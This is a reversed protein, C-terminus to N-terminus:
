GEFGRFAWAPLSVLDAGDGYAPWVGSSMCEAYQQLHKQYEDRGLSIALDELEYVAVCFPPDKELVIFM